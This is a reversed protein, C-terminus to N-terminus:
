RIGFYNIKEADRTAYENRYELRHWEEHSIDSTTCFIKFFAARMLNKIKSIIKKM